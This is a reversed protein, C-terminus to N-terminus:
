AVGTRQIRKQHVRQWCQQWIQNDVSFTAGDGTVRYEHLPEPIHYIMFKEAARLWLDYDEVVRLEEDYLGVAKFVDSKVIAASGIICEECLRAYSFPEKCERYKQGNQTNLTNYDSCVIGIGPYKDFIKIAELIKSPYYIDDMDLIAFIDTDDIYSQIGLNRAASPGSNVPTQLLFIPIEKDKIDNIIQYTDDTSCDDVIIIQDPRREQSLLSRYYEEFWSGYNYTATIVSVKHQDKPM